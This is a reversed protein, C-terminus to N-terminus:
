FMVNIAFIATMSSGRQSYKDQDGTLVNCGYLVASMHLTKHAMNAVIFNFKIAQPKRRVNCKQMSVIFAHEVSTYNPDHFTRKRQKRLKCVISLIKM